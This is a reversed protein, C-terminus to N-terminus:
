SSNAHREVAVDLDGDFDVRGHSLVLGRNCFQTLIGTSHSAVVLGGSNEALANIRAAARERFRVDGTGFVEDILLLQAQTATALGFGVRARMGSSLQRMPVDAYHGLEAFDLVDDIIGSIAKFPVGYLIAAERLNQRPTRDQHLGLNTTFLTSVPAHRTVLGETPRLIGACVRLLTSKGSGNHGILALRDGAKLDFSVGDLAMIRMRGLQDRRFRAGVAADDPIAKTGSPAAFSISVEEACLLTDGGATV